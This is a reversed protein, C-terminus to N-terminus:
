KISGCRDASFSIVWVAGYMEFAAAQVRPRYEASAGLYLECETKNVARFRLYEMLQGASVKLAKAMKQLVTVTPNRIGREVASV